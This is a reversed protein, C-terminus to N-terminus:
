KGSAVPSTPAGYDPKPRKCAGESNRTDCVVVSTMYKEWMAISEDTADQRWIRELHYFSDRGRIIKHLIVSRKGDEWDCKVLWVISPYGNEPGSSITESAFSHCRERGAKEDIAKYREVDSAKDGFYVITDFYNKGEASWEIIHAHDKDGTATKWELEPFTLPQLLNEGEYGMPPTPTMASTTECSFLAVAIGFLALVGIAMSKM